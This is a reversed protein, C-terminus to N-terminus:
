KKERHLLYFVAAGSFYLMCDIWDGTYRPNHQPLYWEFYFCYFLSVGLILPLSLQLKPNDKIKRVVYLCLGLVLPLFLFDNVYNNIWIPIPVDLRQCAYITTALSFALFFLIRRM